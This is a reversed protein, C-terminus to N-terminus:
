HEHSLGGFSDIQRTYSQAESLDIVNCFHLATIFGKAHSITLDSPNNKVGQLVIELQKFWPNLHRISGNIEPNPTLSPQIAGVIEVNATFSALCKPNKCTVNLQHLVPSPRKRGNVIMRTDCHPCYVGISKSM